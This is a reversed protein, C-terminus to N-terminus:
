CLICLSLSISRAALVALMQWNSCSQKTYQTDADVAQSYTNNPIGTSGLSGPDHPVGASLDAANTAYDQWLKGFNSYTAQEM